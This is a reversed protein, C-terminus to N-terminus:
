YVLILNGLEIVAIQDEHGIGPRVYGCVLQGALVTRSNDLYALSACRPALDIKATVGLEIDDM